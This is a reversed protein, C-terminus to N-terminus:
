PVLDDLIPSFLPELYKAGAVSIHNSDFYLPTGNKIIACDAKTCLFKDPYVRMINKGRPLSDLFAFGSANEKSYEPYSISLAEPDRGRMVASTLLVPVSNDASPFPYIIVVKKGAALLGEVVARFGDESLKERYRSNM